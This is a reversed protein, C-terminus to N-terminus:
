ADRLPMLVHIQTKGRRTAPLLHHSQMGLEPQRSRDRGLVSAVDFASFEQRNNEPPHHMYVRKFGTGLLEPRNLRLVFLRILVPVVRSAPVRISREGYFQCGLLQCDDSYQRDRCESSLLRCLAAYLGPERPNFINRYHPQVEFLADVKRKPKFDLSRAM